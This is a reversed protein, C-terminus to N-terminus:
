RVRCVGANQFDQNKENAGIAWQYFNMAWDHYKNDPSIVFGGLIATGMAGATYTEKPYAFPPPTQVTSTADSLPGWHQDHTRSAYGDLWTKIVDTIAARNPVPNQIILEINLGYLILGFSARANASSYQDIDDRSDYFGGYGGGNPWIRDSNREQRSIIWSATAEAWHAYRLATAQNGLNREYYSLAVLAALIEGNEAIRTDRTVGNETEYSLTWSGDPNQSTRWTELSTELTKVVNDYYGFDNAPVNIIHNWRMKAATIALGELVAADWFSAEDTTRNM